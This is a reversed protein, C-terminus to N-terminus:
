QLLPLATRWAASRLESPATGQAGARAEPRGGAKASPLDTLGLVQLPERGPRSGERSRIVRTWIHPRLAHVKTM